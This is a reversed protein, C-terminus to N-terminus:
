YRLFLELYSAVQLFGRETFWITMKGTIDHSRSLDLDHGQYM